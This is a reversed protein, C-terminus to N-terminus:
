YRAIVKLMKQLAEFLPLLYHVKVRVQRGPSMCSGKNPPSLMLFRKHCICPILHLRTQQFPVHQLKFAMMDKSKVAPEMLVFDIVIPVIPGYKMIPILIKVQCSSHLQTPGMCKM